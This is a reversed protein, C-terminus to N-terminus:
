LILMKLLLLALIILMLGFLLKLEVGKGRQQGFEVRKGIRPLIRFNTLTLPQM